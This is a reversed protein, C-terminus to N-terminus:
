PWRRHVVVALAKSSRHLAAFALAKSFRGPEAAALAKSTIRQDLVGRTPGLCPLSPFRAQDRRIRRRARKYEELSQSIPLACTQVGTVLKDRIGDEAQFFFFFLSVPFFRVCVSSKSLLM